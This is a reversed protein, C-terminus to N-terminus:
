SPSSVLSSTERARLYVPSSQRPLIGVKWTAPFSKLTSPAPMQGASLYERCGFCVWRKGLAVFLPDDLNAAEVLNAINAVSEASSVQGRFYVQSCSVCPFVDGYATQHVFCDLAEGGSPM